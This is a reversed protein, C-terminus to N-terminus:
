KDGPKRGMQNVVSYQWDTIDEEYDSLRDELEKIRDIAAEIIIADSKQAHAAIVKLREILNNMIEEGNM